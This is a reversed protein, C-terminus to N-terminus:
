IRRNSSRKGHHILTSPLGLRLSFLAAIEGAYPVPVPYLGESKIDKSPNQKLSWNSRVLSADTAALNVTLSTKLM